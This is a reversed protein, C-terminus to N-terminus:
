LKGGDVGILAFLILPVSSSQCVRAFASAPIVDM